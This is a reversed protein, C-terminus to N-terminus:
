VSHQTRSDLFNFNQIYEAVCLKNRHDTQGRSNLWFNFEQQLSKIHVSTSIKPWCINDTTGCNCQETECNAIRTVQHLIQRLAFKICKKPKLNGVFLFYCPTRAQKLLHLGYTPSKTSGCEERQVLFNRRSAELEKHWSYYCQDQM